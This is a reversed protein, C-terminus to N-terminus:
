IHVYCGEKYFLHILINKWTVTSKFPTVLVEIHKASPSPLISWAEENQNEEPM